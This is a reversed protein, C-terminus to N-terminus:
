KVHPQPGYEAAHSNHSLEGAQTPSPPGVEPLEWIKGFLSEPSPICPSPAMRWLLHPQSLEEAQTHASWGGPGAFSVHPGSDPLGAGQQTRQDYQM